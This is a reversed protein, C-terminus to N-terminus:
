TGIEVPSSKLSKQDERIGRLFKLPSLKTPPFGIIMRLADMGSFDHSYFRALTEPPLSRYLRRFIQWRAEPRVLRFLLRNLFRAFRLQFHNDALLREVSICAQEPEVAAVATAFKVALPFSYGTAAHFWGGAYGGKVVNPGKQVPPEPMAGQLPMPLCGRELRAVNWKAQTHREIYGRLRKASADYDLDPTDSFWTDEVLVRRRTFPLVYIFHFGDTQDVRADMLTPSSTPWDSELEIEAGYFKQYGLKCRISSPEKDNSTGHQGRCDIVCRAVFHSGDATKVENFRASVVEANLLLRSGEEALLSKVARGLLESTTSSYPLGVKSQFGPFCVQYSSWDVTPLSCLWGEAEVPIDSRHFSWTHNGGYKEGREIVLIKAGPQEHKISLVLLGAQLGGGVLVYDFVTENTVRM